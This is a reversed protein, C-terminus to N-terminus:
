KHIVTLAPTKEPEALKTIIVYKGYKSLESVVKDFRRPDFAVLAEDAIIPAVGQYEEIIKLRYGVLVAILALATRESTSLVEIPQEYERGSPFKRIVRIDFVRKLMGTTPDKEERRYLRVGKIWTFGLEKIVESAIRSFEDSIRSLTEYLEKEVNELEKSTKEIKGRVEALKRGAESRKAIKEELDRIHQEVEGLRRELEARRDAAVREEETLQKRLEELEKEILGRENKLRAVEDKYHEFARELEEIRRKLSPLKVDVIERIENYKKQLSELEKWLEKLKENANAIRVEYDKVISEKSKMVEDEVEVERRSWFEEPNEIPKGCVPCASAKTAKALHVVPIRADQGVLYERRENELKKILSDTRDIEGKIKALEEEPNEHIAYFERVMTEYRELDARADDIAKATTAIIGEPKELDEIRKSVEGLRRNLTAIRDQLGRVREISIARLKKLEEELDKKLEEYKQREESVKKLEEVDKLLLNEESKLKDLEERLSERMKEYEDLRFVKVLYDTIDANAQTVVRRAVEGLYPDLIVYRLRDSVIVPKSEVELIRGNVRKFKRIFERSDIVIKIYGEDADINLLQDLPIANPAYMALIAKVLSTKGAANPAVVENLGESFEFRHKGILGGVNEVEVVIM